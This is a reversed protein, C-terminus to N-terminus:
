NVGTIVVTSPSPRAITLLRSVAKLTL